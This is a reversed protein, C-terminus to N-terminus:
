AYEGSACISIKKNTLKGLILIHIKNKRPWPIVDIQNKRSVKGNFEGHSPSLSSKKRRM